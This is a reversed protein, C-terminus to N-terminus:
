KDLLCRQVGVQTLTVYDHERFCVDCVPYYDWESSAFIPFVGESDPTIGEPLCDVCYVSGQYTVAYFHYAKM